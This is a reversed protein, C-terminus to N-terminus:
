PTLSVGRILTSTPFTKSSHTNQRVRTQALLYVKSARQLSAPLQFTATFTGASTLRVNAVITGATIASCSSAARITVPEIRKSFPRTVNGSFTISRGAATVSTTYMRRAFKLAGSRASGLKAFYNARNTFRLSGPPFAVTAKFSLDSRVKAVAVPKGNWTSIITVSKGAAAAPAM